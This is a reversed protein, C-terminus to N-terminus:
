LEFRWYDRDAERQWAMLRSWISVTSKMLYITAIPKAMAALLAPFAHTHPPHANSNPIPAHVQILYPLLIMMFNNLNQYKKISYNVLMSACQLETEICSGSLCITTKGHEPSTRSEIRQLIDVNIYLLYFLSRFVKRPQDSM